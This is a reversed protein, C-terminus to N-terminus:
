QSSRGARPILPTIPIVLEGIFGQLNPRSSPQNMTFLEAEIVGWEECLQPKIVGPLNTFGPTRALEELDTGPRLDSVHLSVIRARRVTDGALNTLLSSSACIRTDKKYKAFM